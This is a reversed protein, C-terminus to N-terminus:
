VSVLGHKARVAITDIAMSRKPNDHLTLEGHGKENEDIGPRAGVPLIWSAGIPERPDDAIRSAHGARGAEVTQGVLCPSGGGLCRRQNGNVAAVSGKM